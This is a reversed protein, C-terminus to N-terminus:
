DGIGSPRSSLRDSFCIASRSSNKDVNFYYRLPDSGKEVSRSVKPVSTASTGGVVETGSPGSDTSFPESGRRLQLELHTHGILVPHQRATVKSLQRERTKGADSQSLSRWSSACARMLEVILFTWNPAM